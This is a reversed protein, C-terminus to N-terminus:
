KKLLRIFSSPSPLHYGGGGGIVKTPFTRVCKLYLISNCDERIQRFMLYIENLFLYRDCLGFFTIIELCSSAFRLVQILFLPRKRRIIAQSYQVPFNNMFFLREPMLVLHKFGAKVILDFHQLHGTFMAYFLPLRM